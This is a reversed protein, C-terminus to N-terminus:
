KEPKWGKSLREEFGANFSAQAMNRENKCQVEQLASKQLQMCKASPVYTMAFMDDRTKILVQMKEQAQQRQYATWLTEAKQWGGSFYVAAALIVAIIILKM